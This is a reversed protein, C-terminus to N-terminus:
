SLRQNPHFLSLITLVLNSSVHHTSILVGSSKLGKKAEEVNVAYLNPMLTQMMTFEVLRNIERAEEMGNVPMGEM